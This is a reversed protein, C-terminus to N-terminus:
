ETVKVIGMMGVVDYDWFDFTGNRAFTYNFTDGPAITKKIPVQTIVLVHPEVDMNKWMVTDGVKIETENPLYYNSFIKIEVVKGTKPAFVDSANPEQSVLTANEETENKPAWFSFVIALSLLLGVVLLPIVFDKNGRIEMYNLM